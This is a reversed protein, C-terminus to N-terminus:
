NRDLNRITRQVQRLYASDNIASEPLRGSAIATEVLDQATVKNSRLSTVFRGGAPIGQSKFRGQYGATVLDFPSIEVISRANETNISVKSQAIAPTGLGLIVAISLAATSFRKM